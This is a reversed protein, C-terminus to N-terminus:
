TKLEGEFAQKLICQRLAEAQRLSTDITQEIIDCISLNTEIKEVVQAQMNFDDCKPVPLNGIESSNINNVGSTSKAVHEIYTRATHSELFYHLFKSLVDSPKKLRLRILYGAFTAECDEARVISSRGVLSVSGNSRIILLDNEMLDLNKLEDESFDAYKIDKHDISGNQYCINPIRYVAKSGKKYAYSCKKSTGYKPKEIINKLLISEKSVPDFAEKLAAQRYVKLKEKATQLEAVSADLKSFLEEIKSVIREQEDSDPVPVPIRKMAAQTLKYRTTGTVFGHYDFHNLYYCLFKNNYKSRLIHAHNNVWAKGHILYAKNAVPNLFPAGDEGLLVYEGDSLYSDIYGVQGTAGYYPYLEDKSKGLVRQAREKSNIPKRLSDWIEVAEEFNVWTWKSTQNLGM